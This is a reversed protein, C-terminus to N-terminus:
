ISKFYICLPRRCLSHSSPGRCVLSGALQWWNFQFVNRAVTFQRPLYFAKNGQTWVNIIRVNSQCSPELIRFFIKGLEDVVVILTATLFGTSWDPVTLTDIRGIMPDRRLALPLKAHVPLFPLTTHSDGLRRISSSCSAGSHCGDSLFFFFGETRCKEM